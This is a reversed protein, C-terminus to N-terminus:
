NKVIQGYLYDIHDEWNPYPIVLRKSDWRKSCRLKGNILDLSYNWEEEKNEPAVIVYDEKSNEIIRKVEMTLKELLSNEMRDTADIWFERNLIATYNSLIEFTVKEHSFGMKDPNTFIWESTKLEIESVENAEGGRSESDLDEVSIKSSDILALFRFTVNERNEKPDDNVGAPYVQDPTIRIGTEEYVERCAAERLTEGWGVYGCPHVYKGVEDPCGPGRKELLFSDKSVDFLVVCVAMSRSWWGVHEETEGDIVYKIKPNEKM